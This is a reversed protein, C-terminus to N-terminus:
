LEPSCHTSRENNLVKSMVLLQLELETRFCDVHEVGRLNALGFEDVDSVGQVAV